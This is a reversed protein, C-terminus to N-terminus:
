WESIWKCLYKHADAAHTDLKELLNQAKAHRSYRCHETLGLHFLCSWVWLCDDCGPCQDNAGGTHLHVNRGQTKPYLQLQDFRYLDSHKQFLVTKPMFTLFGSRSFNERRLLCWRYESCCVGRILDSSGAPFLRFTPCVHESHVHHLMIIRAPFKGGLLNLSLSANYLWFAFRFLWNFTQLTQCHKWNPPFTSFSNLLM